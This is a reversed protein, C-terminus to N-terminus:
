SLAPGFFLGLVVAIAVILTWGLVCVAIARSTHQYDLAQRVAVIMAALMWVASLAFV